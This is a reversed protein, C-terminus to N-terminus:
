YKRKDDLMFIEYIFKDEFLNRKIYAHFLVLLYISNKGHEKKM